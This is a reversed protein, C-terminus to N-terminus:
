FVGLKSDNKNKQEILAKESTRPCLEKKIKLDSMHHGLRNSLRKQMEKLNRVMLFNNLFEIDFKSLKQGGFSQKFKIQGDICVVSASVTEANGFFISEAYEYKKPLTLVSFLLPRSQIDFKDLKNLQEIEKKLKENRSNLVQIHEANKRQGKTVGEGRLYVAPLGECHSDLRAALVLATEPLLKVVNECIKKNFPALDFLRLAASLQNPLQEKRIPKAIFKIAEFSQVRKYFVAGYSSNPLESVWYNGLFDSSFLAPKTLMIDILPAFYKARRERSLNRISTLLNTKSLLVTKRPPKEYEFYFIYSGNKLSTRKLLLGSLEFNDISPNLINKEFFVQHETIMKDKPDWVYDIRDLGIKRVLKAKAYGEITSMPVQYQPVSVEIESTAKESAFCVSSVLLSLVAPFFVLLHRYKECAHKQDSAQTLCSM